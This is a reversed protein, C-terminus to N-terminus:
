RQVRQLPHQRVFWCQLETIAWGEILAAALTIVTQEDPLTGFAEIRLRPQSRICLNGRRPSIMTSTTCVLRWRSITRCSATSRFWQSPTSWATGKLTKSRLWIPGIHMGAKRCYEEM